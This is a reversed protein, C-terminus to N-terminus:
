NGTPIFCIYITHFHPVTEYNRYVSGFEPVIDRDREGIQEITVRHAPPGTPKTGLSSLM